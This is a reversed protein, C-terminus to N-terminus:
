VRMSPAVFLVRRLVDELKFERTGGWFPIVDKIHVFGIIDDLTERFVPMRSHSERALKQVLDALPVDHKVAVIDARPIMVDYTTIERLKFINRLLERERADFEPQATTSEEILEEITERLDPENSRKRLGSWLRDVVGRAPDGM